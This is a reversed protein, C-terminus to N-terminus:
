LSLQSGHPHRERLTGFPAYAMVLFPEPAELEFELFSIIHPHNLRAIMRAEHLFHYIEEASLHSHLVKVAAMTGLHVHRGLYTTAFGGQGLVRLLIYNGCRDDNNPPYDNTIFNHTYLEVPDNM